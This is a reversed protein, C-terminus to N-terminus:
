SGAPDQRRWLRDDSMDPAPTATSQKPRQHRKRASALRLRAGLSMVLLMPAGILVVWSPVRIGNAGGIQVSQTSNDLATWFALVCCSGLLVVVWSLARLM